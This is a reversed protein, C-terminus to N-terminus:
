PSNVSITAWTHLRAGPSNMWMKPSACRYRLWRSCARIWSRREGRGSGVMRRLGDTVDISSKTYSSKVSSPYSGCGAILAGIATHSTRKDDSGCLVADDADVVAQ